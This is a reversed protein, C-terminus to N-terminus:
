PYRHNDEQRIRIIVNALRLAWATEQQTNGKKEATPDRTPLLFNPHSSVADTGALTAFPSM